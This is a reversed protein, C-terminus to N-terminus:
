ILDFAEIASVHNSNTLGFPFSDARSKYQKTNLFKILTLTRNINTM